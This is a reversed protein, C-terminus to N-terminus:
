LKVEWPNEEGTMFAKCSKLSSGVMSAVDNDTYFAMHPTVVVNPFSNLIALGPHHLPGYKLDNYYLGFEEEVVDLGAGAIKGSEIGEILAETQILGGRATNIIVVQDKMKAIAEKNIIHFNNQFLPMHLTILDSQAYLEDLTVYTADKKVEESEYLDYALIKCGFSKLLKIVNKGIRGTGMVGVTFDKLERGCNGKLSFDHMAAKGMIYKINRITMLMLMVAYEAVGETGYNVNGIRIGLRKCANVDIHDYGMTRTSIFRIGQDYFAKALDAPIKTTIISMTDCGEALHVNDLGPDTPCCVLEVGLEKSYKDCWFKEDYDRMNYILIKKM